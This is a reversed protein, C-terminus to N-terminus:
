YGPDPKNNKGKSSKQQNDKVEDIMEVINELKEEINILRKKINQTAKKQDFVERELEESKVIFLLKNYDGNSTMRPM